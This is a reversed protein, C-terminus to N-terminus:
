KHSPLKESEMKDSKGEAERAEEEEDDHAHHVYCHVINFPPNANNQLTAIVTSGFHYLTVIIVSTLFAIVFQRKETISAFKTEEM